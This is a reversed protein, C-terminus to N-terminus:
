IPVDTKDLVHKILEVKTVGSYKAKSTLILRHALVAPALRQVDDPLVFDRGQQLASAQAAHFLMLAGRPSVGLKIQHHNRTSEVIEAIYGAISDEVSVHRVAQQLNLVTEACMVPTLADLPDSEQRSFLIQKTVERSPYGLNLMLMFRDLQAEPLPYTGHYEMPNQTALVLFPKPLPYLTGEITAQYESMSELLAAQTRPSARNIEDALLINCFVPGRNFRFSGDAPNYISTGLIDAPLLDPTFQIRNYIADISKAMAKALTTKGVGPVDEMLVSGGAALAIVLLDLQEAKGQIVSCLNDHLLQIKSQISATEAIAM